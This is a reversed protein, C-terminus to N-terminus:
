FPFFSTTVSANARTLTPKKKASGLLSEQVEPV